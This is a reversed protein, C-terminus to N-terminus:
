LNHIKRGRAAWVHKAWGRKYGNEKEIVLLDNLSKARAIKVRMLKKMQDKDERTLERLEGDVEVPLGSKNLYVHGCEPCSPEPRHVYACKPCQRIMIKSTEEDDNLKKRSRKKSGNLSWNRPDDPFGHRLYNGVHDLIIAETKGESLRLARGVQQIYLGESATPRLLIACTIAPIDTGESILDCTTIVQWKGNGLGDLRDQRTEDDMNGDVSEARYGAERFQEAVHVAHDVSVCFVVCPAGPCLKTYETVADGTIKPKDVKSATKKKDYDGRVIEIDSFDILQRPGFVRPRVLAGLDIL